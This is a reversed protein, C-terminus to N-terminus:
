LYQAAIIARRSVKGSKKLAMAEDLLKNAEEFKEPDRRKVKYDNMLSEYKADENM